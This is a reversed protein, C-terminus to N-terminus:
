GWLATTMRDVADQQWEAAVHAYINMTTSIQSHGLIEMAVRPPVGMAAMLSAAGHRLDHFRMPPLGAKQLLKHFRHLAHDGALPAGKEDTFVM